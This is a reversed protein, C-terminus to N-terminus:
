QQSSRATENTTSALFAVNEFYKSLEERREWAAKTNKLPHVAFLRRDLITQLPTKESTSLARSWESSDIGLDVVNHNIGRVITTLLLDDSSMFGFNSQEKRLIGSEALARLTRGGLVYFGGAIYRFRFGKLVARWGFRAWWTPKTRPFKWRRQIAGDVTRRSFGLPFLDALYLLIDRKRMPYSVGYLGQRDLMLANFFEGLDNRLVLADADIQYVLDYEQPKSAIWDLGIMTRQITGRFGLSKPLLYHEVSCVNVLDISTSIRQGVRSPSADDLIYLDVSDGDLGNLLSQLAACGIEYESECCAFFVAVRM